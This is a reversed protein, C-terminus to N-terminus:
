DGDVGGLEIGKAREVRTLIDMAFAEIDGGLLDVLELLRGGYQFAMADLSGNLDSVRESRVPAAPAGVGTVAEHLWRAWRAFGWYGEPEVTGAYAKREPKSPRVQVELRVTDPAYANDQKGKEYLRVRTESKRSGVYLTAAEGDRSTEVFDTLTVTGRLRAAALGRVTAFFEQGGAFDLRVDGRSVSHGPVHRRLLGAVEHADRGTAVVHDLRGSGEYVTALTQGERALAWGRSYGYAGKVLRPAGDAAIGLVDVGTM